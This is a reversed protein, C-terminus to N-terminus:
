PGGLLAAKCKLRRGTGVGLLQPRDFVKLKFKPKSGPKALVRRFVRVVPIPACQNVGVRRHPVCVVRFKRTGIMRLHSALFRGGVAIFFCRYHILLLHFGLNEGGPTTPHYPGFVRPPKCGARGPLSAPESAHHAGCRPLLSVVLPCTQRNKAGRVRRTLAFSQNVIDCNRRARLPTRNTM